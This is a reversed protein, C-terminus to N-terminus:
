GIISRSYVEVTVPIRLPFFESWIPSYWSSRLVVRARRGDPSDAQMVRLETHRISPYRSLFQRTAGAVGSSTLPVELGSATMQLTSPDFSEAAYLAAQEALATLRHRELTLSTVSSVGLAVALALAVLGAVLPLTSGRDRM